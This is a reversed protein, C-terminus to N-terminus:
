IVLHRFLIVIDDPPLNREESCISLSQPFVANSLRAVSEPCLEFSQTDDEEPTVRSLVTAPDKALRHCCCPKSLQQSFESEVCGNSSARLEHHRSSCACGKCSRPVANCCCKGGSCTGSCFVKFTGDACICATSPLSGWTLMLLMALVHRTKTMRTAFRHFRNLM